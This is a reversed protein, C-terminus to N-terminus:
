RGEGCRRSAARTARGRLLSCRSAIVTPGSPSSCTRHSESGAGFNASGRGPVGARRPASPATPTKRWFLAARKRETRNRRWGGVRSPGHSGGAGVGEGEAEVQLNGASDGRGRRRAGAGGASGSFLREEARGVGADAVPGRDTRAGGQAEDAGRGSIFGDD